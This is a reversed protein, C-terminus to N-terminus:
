EHEKQKFIRYIIPGALYYILLVTLAGAFIGNEMIAQGGYKYVFLGIAILFNVMSYMINQTNGYGFASLIRGKWTGLVFHPMANMLAAGIVFDIWSM